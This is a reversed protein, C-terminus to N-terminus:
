SYYAYFIYFSFIFVFIFYALGTVAKGICSNRFMDNNEHNYPIDSSLRVTNSFFSQKLTNLVIDVIYTSYMGTAM